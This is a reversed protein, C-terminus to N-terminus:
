VQACARKWMCVTTGGNLRAENVRQMCSSIVVLVPPVQRCFLCASESQERCMCETNLGVGEGEKLGVVPGELAGVVVGVGDGLGMGENLGVCTGM